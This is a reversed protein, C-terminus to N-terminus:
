TFRIQVCLAIELIGENNYIHGFDHRDISPTDFKLHKFLYDRFLDRTESELCLVEASSNVVITGGSVSSTGNWITGPTMGTTIESILHKVKYEYLVENDQQDLEMVDNTAMVDTLEKLKSGKGAYYALTMAALLEPMGKDLLLLNRNFVDHDFRSFIVPSHESMAEIRLRIAGKADIANLSHIHEDSLKTSTSYIIKTTSKGANLLTPKGGLFSKISFGRIVIDNLVPDFIAIEIDSKRTSPSTMTGILGLKRVLEGLEPIDISGTGDSRMQMELLMLELAASIEDNSVISIEIDNEDTVLVDKSLPRYRVYGDKRRRLVYRVQLPAGDLRHMDHDARYMHRDALLRLLVYLESWEGKNKAM